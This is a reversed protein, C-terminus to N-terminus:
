TGRAEIAATASFKTRFSGARLCENFGERGSPSASIPMNSVFPKWAGTKRRSLLRQRRRLGSQDGEGRAYRLVDCVEPALTDRKARVQTVRRAGREHMEAGWAGRTKKQSAWRDSAPHSAAAVNGHGHSNKRRPLRATLASISLPLRQEACVDIKAKPMQNPTMGHWAHLSITFPVEDCTRLRAGVLRTQLLRVSTYIITCYRPSFTAGTPRHKREAANHIKCWWHRKVSRKEQLALVFHGVNKKEKLRVAKVLNNHAILAYYGSRAQLQAFSSSSPLERCRKFTPSAPNQSSFKQKAFTILQKHIHYLM